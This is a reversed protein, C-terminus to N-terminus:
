RNGGVVSLFAVEPLRRLVKPSSPLRKPPSVSLNPMLEHRKPSPALPQALGSASRRPLDTPVSPKPEPSNPSIALALRMGPSLAPTAL